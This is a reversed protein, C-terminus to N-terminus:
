DGGRRRRTEPRKSSRSSAKSLSPLDVIEIRLKKGFKALEASLRSLRTEHHPNLLRRAETEGVSLRQALKTSSLVNASRAAMYFAAKTAFVASPEAVLDGRSRGAPIPERAAIRAAIAEDLCDSAEALAEAKTDGQTVAEPFAPFTVVFGGGKEPTLKVAYRYMIQDIAKL